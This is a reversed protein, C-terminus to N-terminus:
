QYHTLWEPHTAAEKAYVENFFATQLRETIPGRVGNAIPRYDLSVMPLVEAATGTAFVEDATVFEDRTIRRIETPIGMTKALMLISDRTIGELANHTAPTILTDQKVMFVNQASCETVYGQYDLMLAEDCGAAQAERLALISNLYNATAKAKLPMSDPHNRVYSSTKLSLGNILASDDIYHDWKKAAIFVHTVLNKSHLGLGEDIYCLPRLYASHLHNAKLVEIHAQKLTEADYPITMNLILASRLLRAVHCDLRFVAGGKKTPYSRVGEFCGLGYNLSYSLPHVSIDKIPCLQGDFWVYETIANM